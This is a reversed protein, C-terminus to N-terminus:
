LITKGPNQRYHEIKFLFMRAMNHAREKAEEAKPGHFYQDVTEYFLKLWTEFHSQQLPMQSHPVFPSGSYTREGLLVTEWFRYLKALHAPWEDKIVGIFIPGIHPDKQVRAYFEDVMLIVDERSSIDKKVEAIQENM